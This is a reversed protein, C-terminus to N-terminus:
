FELLNSGQIKRYIHLQHRALRSMHTELIELGKDGIIYFPKLM